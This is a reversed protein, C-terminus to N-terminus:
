TLLAGVAKALNLTLKYASQVDESSGEVRVYWIGEELGESVWDLSGNKGLISQSVSEGEKQMSVLLEGGPMYPYVIEGGLNLDGQSVVRYWDVDGPCIALGDLTVSPGDLVPALEKTDGVGTLDYTDNSCFPKKSFFVTMDYDSVVGKDHRVELFLTMSETEQGPAGVVAFPADGEEGSVLVGTSVEYLNVDLYGNTDDYNIRIIPSVGPLVAIRYWDVDGVEMTPSYQGDESLPLRLPLGNPEFPDPIPVPPLCSGRRLEERRSM